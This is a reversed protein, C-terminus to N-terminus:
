HPSRNIIERGATDRFVTIKHDAGTVSVWGPILWDLAGINRRLSAASSEDWPVHFAIALATDERVGRAPAGTLLRAYDTIRHRARKLLPEHPPPLRTLAPHEAEFPLLPARPVAGISVVLAVASLLILLIFAGVAFGFRRRRRGSADYFIPSLSM